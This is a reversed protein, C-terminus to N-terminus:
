VDRAMNGPATVPVRGTGGILERLRGALERREEETLMEGVECTRGHSRILLRGNHGTRPAPRLEVQAWHRSFEVVQGAEFGQRRITVRDQSVSIEEWYRGRRMSLGLGLGLAFLELGAFPLIPWMGRWAFVGAVTLSGVATVGFFLLAGRPTLSCNASVHIRALLPDVPASSQTM